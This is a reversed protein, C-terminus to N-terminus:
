DSHCDDSIPVFEVWGTGGCLDCFPDHSCSCEIFGTRDVEPITFAPTMELTWVLYEFSDYHKCNDQMRFGKCTCHGYRPRKPIWVQYIEGDDDLKAALFMRGGVWYGAELMEPDIAVEQVLYSVISLKSTGGRPGVQGVQIVLLADATPHNSLPVLAFRRYKATRSEHLQAAIV